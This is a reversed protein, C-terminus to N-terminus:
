DMKVNRYQVNFYAIKIGVYSITESM